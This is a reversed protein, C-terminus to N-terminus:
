SRETDRLREFGLYRTGQFSLRGIDEEALMGYEQAGVQFEMRDGSEVEFTVYYTTSHHNHSLGNGSNHHHSTVHDRKAVIQSPVILVPQSNNYKWTRIGQIIGMLIIGFVVVFGITVMIPVISFMMDSQIFM